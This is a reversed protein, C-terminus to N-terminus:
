VWGQRQAVRVAAMRRHVRLKSYINSLHNEVTAESIVLADAIQRNSLGDAVLRLVEAERPTPPDLTHYWAM